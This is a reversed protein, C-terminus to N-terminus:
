AATVGSCAVVRNRGRRKAEYMALDARRLVSDVTDREPDCQAVGISVTVEIRQAGQTVGGGTSLAGCMRQAIQEARGLDTNGLTVYFEEGGARAVIDHQRLEVLMARVMHVLVADGAAHGYTDNISKFHDVDLVLLSLPQHERRCRSLEAASLKMFSRRNYIGTLPDVTALKELQTELSKRETIDLMAGVVGGLTGDGKPFVAKHFVIDHVSGDKFKVQAEYIQQGGADLLERDARQYVDALHKPALDYVTKGVIEKPSVGIYGEFARNCGIYVGREDKFFIPAPVADIVTRLLDSPLAAQRRGLFQLTLALRDVECEALYDLAGLSHWVRAAQLEFAPAVALFAPAGWARIRQSMHQPTIALAGADILLVDVPEPQAADVAIPRTALRIGRQALPAVLAELRGSAGVLGATLSSAM